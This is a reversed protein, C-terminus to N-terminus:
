LNIRCKKYLFIRSFIPITKYTKELSLSPTFKKVYWSLHIKKDVEVAGRMDPLKKSSQKKRQRNNSIAASLQTSSQAGQCNYSGFLFCMYMIIIFLLTM